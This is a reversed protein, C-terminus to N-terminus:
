PGSRPFRTASQPVVRSITPSQACEEVLANPLLHATRAEITKLSTKLGLFITPLYAAHLCLAVVSQLITRLMENMKLDVMQVRRDNQRRTVEFKWAVKFATVM